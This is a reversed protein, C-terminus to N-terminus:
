NETPHEVDDVVLVRVPGRTSQLKLGLQEKLMTDLSGADSAPQEDPRLQLMGPLGKPDFQADADFGGSFGTRDVVMRDLLRTLANALAGMTQGRLMLTGSPLAYLICRERKEPQSALLPECDVNAPRLQRGPAGDSRAPVLEFIPQTVTDHHVALKFRQVLLARLM